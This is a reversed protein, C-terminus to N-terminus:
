NCAHASSLCKERTRMTANRDIFAAFLVVGIVNSSIARNNRMSSGVSAFDSQSRQENVTASRPTDNLVLANMVGSRAFMSTAYANRVFVHETTSDFSLFQVCPTGDDTMSPSARGLVSASASMMAALRAMSAARRANSADASAMELM